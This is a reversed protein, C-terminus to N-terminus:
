TAMDAIMWQIGQFQSIPKNFQVREKAYNVAADFCAQALAVSQSAIGIRGGDPSAMAIKFGSGEEGLLNEAPVRCDEFILEVTDSARLEMKNEEKGVRFGPTGKEVIFASIGKHKKEKDTYATVVRVDSNKETTIFMKTGNIVYNDGDRV